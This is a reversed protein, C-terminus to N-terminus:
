PRSSVPHSLRGPASRHEQSPTFRQRERQARVEQAIAAAPYCWGHSAPDLLRRVAQAAERRSTSLVEAEGRMRDEEARAARHERKAQAARARLIEVRVVAEELEESTAAERAEAAPRAAAARARARELTDAATAVGASATRRDTDCAEAEAHLAPRAARLGELTRRQRAVAQLLADLDAAAAAVAADHEDLAARAAAAISSAEEAQVEQAALRGRAASVDDQRCHLLVRPCPEGLAASAGAADQRAATCVELLQGDGLCGIWRLTADGVAAPEVTFEALPPLLVAAPDALLVAGCCVGKLVVACGEAAASAAGPPPTAGGGPPPPSSLDGRHFAMAVDPPTATALGVTVVCAGPSFACAGAPVAVAATPIKPASAIATLLAATRIWKRLPEYASADLPAAERAGRWATRLAYEVARRICPNHPTYEGAARGAEPVDYGMMADVDRAGAECLHLCLLEVPTLEPRAAGHVAALGHAAAALRRRRGDCDLPSRLNGAWEDLISGDSSIWLKAVAEGLAPLSAGGGAIEFADATPYCPAGPRAAAAVAVPVREARAARENQVSQALREAATDVCRRTRAARSAAADAAATCVALRAEVDRLVQQAERVEVQHVGVSVLLPYEELSAGAALVEEALAAAGEVGAGDLLAALKAPDGGIAARVRAADGVVAM